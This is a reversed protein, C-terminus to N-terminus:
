NSLLWSIADERNSSVFLIAGRNVATDELFKNIMKEPSLIAIKLPPRVSSAFAEGLIFKDYESKPLDLNLTDILIRTKKTRKAWEVMGKMRSGMQTVNYDGSATILLYNEKEEIKTNYM